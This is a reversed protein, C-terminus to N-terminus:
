FVRIAFVVTGVVFVNSYGTNKDHSKVVILVVLVVNNLSDLRRKRKHLGVVDSQRKKQHLCKKEKYLYM